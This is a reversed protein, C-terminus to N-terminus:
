LLNKKEYYDIQILQIFSNIIQTNSYKQFRYRSNNFVPSRAEVVNWVSRYLRAPITRLIDPQIVDEIVQDSGSEESCDISHVAADAQDVDEM